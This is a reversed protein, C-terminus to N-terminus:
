DEWPTAPHPLDPGAILECGVGDYVAGVELACTPVTPTGDAKTVGGCALCHNRDFGAQM